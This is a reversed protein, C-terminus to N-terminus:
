NGYGAVGDHDVDGRRRAPTFGYAVVSQGVVYGHGQPGHCTQEHMVVHGEVGNEKSGHRTAKASQDACAEDPGRLLLGCGSCGKGQVAEYQDLAYREAYVQQQKGNGVPM